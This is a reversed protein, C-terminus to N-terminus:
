KPLFNTGAQIVDAYAKYQQKGKNFMSEKTKSSSETSMEIKSIQLKDSHSRTM